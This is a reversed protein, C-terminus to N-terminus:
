KKVWEKGLIVALGKLGETLWKVTFYMDELTSESTLMEIRSIFDLLQTRELKDKRTM